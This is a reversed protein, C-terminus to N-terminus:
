PRELQKLREVLAEALAERVGKAFGQAIQEEHIIGKQMRVKVDGQMAYGFPASGLATPEPALAFLLAEGRFSGPAYSKQDEALAPPVLEDTRVVILYRASELWEFAYTIARTLRSPEDGTPYRDNPPFRGTTLLNTTTVLWEASGFSVLPAPELYRGASRLQELGIVWTECGKARHPAIVLDCIALPGPDKMTAWDNPPLTAVLEAVRAVKALQAEAAARHAAVYEGVPEGCGVVCAMLVAALWRSM